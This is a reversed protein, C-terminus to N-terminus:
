EWRERVGWPLVAAARVAKIWARWGQDRGTARRQTKKRVPVKTVFTPGLGGERGKGGGRVREVQIWGWARLWQVACSVGM